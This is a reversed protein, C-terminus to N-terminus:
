RLDPSKNTPSDTPEQIGTEQAPSGASPIRVIVSLGGDSRPRADATGGHIAAISAVITLGLGFGDRLLMQISRMWGRLDGPSPAGDCGETHSHYDGVLRERTRQRHLAREVSYAKDVDLLVNGLSRKTDEGAYAAFTLALGDSSRRGFLYGGTERSEGEYISTWGTVEDVITRRAGEDLVVSIPSQRSTRLEIEKRARAKPTLSAASRAHEAKASGARPRTPWTSPAREFMHPFRRVIEHGDAIYTVGATIPELRGDYRVEGSTIAVYTM